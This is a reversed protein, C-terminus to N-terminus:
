SRARRHVNWEVVQSAIVAVGLLVLYATIGQVLTFRLGGLAGLVLATYWSTISIAGLTFAAHQLHHLGGPYHGTHHGGFSMKRLRPSVVLNLLIGNLIIVAVVIMKLQFRPNASYYAVDHLYFVSGTVILLILAGWFLPHLAHLVREEQKSIRYDKLFRFFLVDSVTASGVGVAVGILHGVLALM